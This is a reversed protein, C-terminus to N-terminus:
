RNLMSFMLLFGLSRFILAGVGLRPHWSRIWDIRYEFHPSLWIAVGSLLVPLYLVTAISSVFIHAQQLFSLKFALATHIAHRNVELTLVLALDGLIGITMLIRHAAPQRKRIGYGTLLIFYNLGAIMMSPTAFFFMIVLACASLILYPLYILIERSTTGQTSITQVNNM